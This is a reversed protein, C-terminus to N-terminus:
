HVPEYYYTRKSMSLELQFLVMSVMTTIVPYNAAFEAPTKKMTNQSTTTSM